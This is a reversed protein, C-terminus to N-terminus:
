PTSIAFVVTRVKPKRTGWVVTATYKNNALNAIEVVSQEVDAGTSRNCDAVDFCACIPRTMCRDKGFTEYRHFDNFNYLEVWSDSM